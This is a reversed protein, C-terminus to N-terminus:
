INKDINMTDLLYTVYNSIDSDSSEVWVIKGNDGYETADEAYTELVAAITSDESMTDLLDYIQNRNQSVQSFSELETIDLKSAIGAKIINDFLSESTDIGFSVQQKPVSKTKKNYEDAAQTFASNSNNVNNDM